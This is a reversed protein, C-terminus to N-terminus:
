RTRDRPRPSTYLLCAIRLDNVHERILDPSEIDIEVLDTVAFMATLINNFDHAIGGALTGLAEIKQAQRLQGEVQRQIREAERTVSVDYISAVMCQEKGVEVREASFLVIRQADRRTRIVIEFDRVSGTALFMKFFQERDAPRYWRQLEAADRGLFEERTYGWLKCCAENVDLFQGDSLRSISM